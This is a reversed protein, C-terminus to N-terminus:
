DMLNFILQLDGHCQIFIGVLLVRHQGMEFNHHPTRFLSCYVTQFILSHIYHTETRHLWPTQVVVNRQVVALYLIHIAM